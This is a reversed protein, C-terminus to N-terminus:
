LSACKKLMEFFLMGNRMAREQMGPLRSYLDERTSVREEWASSFKELLGEASLEEINYLWRKQGLMDGIIGYTRYDEPYSIAIFPVGMCAAGIVSHIREGVLFDLHGLVSKLEDVRYDGDMVIVYEKNQVLKLVDRAVNRDDNHVRPGIAHPIFIVQAKYKQVIQDVVTAITEVHFRYKEEPNAIKRLGYRFVGSDKVVTFGIIPRHEINVGERHLIEIGRSPSDPKLLFAKDATIKILSESVGIEKLFAASHGERTTILNASNICYRTFIRTFFGKYNYPLISAGYIAVPKKLLRCFLILFNHFKSYANDHGLIVADSEIYANWLPGPFLKTVQTGLLYYGFLFFLHTVANKLFHLLKKFKGDISIPLLSETIIKAHKDYSKRDYEPNKSVLIIEVPAGGISLTEVIGWFIAAEGKNYSPIMEPIFIKKVM